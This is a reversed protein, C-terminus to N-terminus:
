TPAWFWFVTPKGAYTAGDFQGGGVLPATFQLAEPVVLDPAIVDPAATGTDAGDTPTPGTTADAPPTTGAPEPDAAATTESTGATEPAVSGDGADTSSCASAVLVLAVAGVALRHRRNTTSHTVWAVTAVRSRDPM